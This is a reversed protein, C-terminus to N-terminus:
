EGQNEPPIKNSTAMGRIHFAGKEEEAQKKNKTRIIIMGMKTGSSGIYHMDSMDYSNIDLVLSPDIRIGSTDKILKDDIIYVINRTPLLTQRSTITSLTLFSTFPQKLTIYIRGSITLDGVPAKQVTINQRNDPNVYINTSNVYQSDIYFTPPIQAFTRLSALSVM